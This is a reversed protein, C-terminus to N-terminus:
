NFFYICIILIDYIILFKILFKNYRIKPSAEPKSLKMRTRNIANVNMRKSRKLEEELRKGKDVSREKDNREKEKREKQGSGSKSSSSSKVKSEILSSIKLTTTDVSNAPEVKKPHRKVQCVQRHLRHRIVLRNQIQQPM